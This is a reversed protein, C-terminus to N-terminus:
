CLRMTRDSWPKFASSIAWYCPVHLRLISSDGTGEVREIELPKDQM